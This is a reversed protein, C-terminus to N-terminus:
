SRPVHEKLLLEIAGTLKYEIVAGEFGITKFQILGQPSIVYTAPIVSFGFKEGLQPDNTFYVPFTYLRNGSWGQADALTNRAGSNVVMFVVDPNDRFRDYVKQLYPMEKMCPVCWTAWFDIVVIKGAMKEAPVPNGKIDVLGSMVPAPINVREKKLTETIKAQWHQQLDTLEKEWGAATGKWNFYDKKMAAFAATDTQNLTAMKKSTLFAKEHQNTYRYYWAANLLTEPDSSFTFAKELAADAKTREGKKLLIVAILSMMNGKATQEVKRKTQEDVHAPLYGTEPFYRILGAPFSAAMAFAREAYALATDLLIGNDSLLKAKSKLTEPLYPSSDPPLQNLHYRVKKENGRVAYYELLIEHFDAMYRKNEPTEKKLFAEAAVRREEDDKNNRIDSAFLEYAGETEPYKERVVKRISDLRSNEGIILYGMTVKNLTGMVGPETYFKEAIKKLALQRYKEKEAGSAANMKNNLLRVGAEYNDPFSQLEKELLARQRLALGPAKGMQASLSYSEYLYGNEVRRANAYVALEYHKDTAPKQIKDGSELYFTAYTAYSPLRFSVQWHDGNKKMPMKWPLEYLNSYSFSLTISKTAAPIVSGKHEPFYTVTVDQGREPREPRLIVSQARAQAFLLVAIMLTSFLRM